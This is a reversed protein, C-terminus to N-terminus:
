RATTPRPEGVKAYLAQLDAPTLSKRHFIGADKLWRTIVKESRNYRQQLEKRTLSGEM